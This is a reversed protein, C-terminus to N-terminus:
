HEQSKGSPKFTILSVGFVISITGLVVSWSLAEDFVFHAMFTVLIYSISLCPYAISLPLTKLALMWCALSMAYCVLGFFVKGLAHIHALLFQSNLWELSVSPVMSMGSKMLLQAITVLILSAAIALWAKM